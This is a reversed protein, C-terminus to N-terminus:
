GELMRRVVANFHAIWEPDFQDDGANVEAIARVMSRGESRQNHKLTVSEFTDVIALIKAGPVIKKGELGHPYGSGDQREHHQLIIQAAMDWGTMRELLGASYEPHHRLLRRDQETLKVARLWTSEPLFMMGIDHMYVAAELQRPEIPMGAVQNTELALRLLRESRGAYLPSRLEYQMALTRFFGLDDSASHPHFAPSPQPVKQNANSAPSFGTVTKILLAAEDDIQKVRTDAMGNLRTVLEVLRLNDLPRKGALSNAALELRDLALLIAEALVNSFAVEGNRVREMLSEIPHAISVGIDVKCLSADGKITHLARFLNALLVKDSPKAKLLAIDREINPVQDSLADIFEQLSESDPSQSRQLSSFDM